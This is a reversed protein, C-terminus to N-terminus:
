KTEDEFFFDFVTAKDGSVELSIGEIRTRLDKEKVILLGNNECFKEMGSEVFNKFDDGPHHNRRLHIQRNKHVVPEESELYQYQMYEYSVFPALTSIYIDVRNLIGNEYLYEGFQNSTLGFELGGENICYRFGRSYNFDTRNDVFQVGFCSKLESVWKNKDVYNFLIYNLMVHKTIDTIESKVRKSTAYIKNAKAKM